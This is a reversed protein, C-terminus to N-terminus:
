AVQVKQLEASGTLRLFIDELSPRVREFQQLRVGSTAILPLIEQSAAAFNRVAVRIRTQEVVVEGAWPERRLAALLAPMAAEQGVELELLYIPQAYREQLDAVSSSVILQGHDVIAVADCHREVDALIHTSMFVTAKGRLRGIIELIDHRGAPDLSSAPEDLFLVEPRNLLAQALGLRQRMGGSYGGVKRHAADTLGTLALAEDVRARLAASRLGFLAGSFELLERGRMWAYYQPSQDLVSIRQHLALDGVAVPIGAVRASGTTPAAMGTLLRVLTTKGAGNPGLFAFISGAPIDLTLNDLALVDGYRKTLGTTSIALDTQSM